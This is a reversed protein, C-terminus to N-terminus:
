ASLYDLLLLLFAMGVIFGVMNWQHSQSRDITLQLEVDTAKVAETADVSVECVTEVVESQQELMHVFEGVLSSINSVTREMRQSQQMDDSFQVKLIKAERLLAEKHKTAVDTYEKLKSIPAIEDIYRQAFSEGSSTTNSTPTRTNSSSSSSTTATAGRTIRTFLSAREKDENEKLEISGAGAATDVEAEATATGTTTASLLSGVYLDSRLRFPNSNHVAFERQMRDSRASFASLSHLLSSIILKCFEAQSSLKANNSANTGYHTSSLIPNTDAIINELQKNLNQIESAM